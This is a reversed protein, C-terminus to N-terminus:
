QFTPIREDQARLVDQETRGFNPLLLAPPHTGPPQAHPDAAQEGKQARGTGDGRNRLEGHATQPHTCLVCRTSAFDRAEDFLHRLGVGVLRADFLRSGSADYGAAACAM